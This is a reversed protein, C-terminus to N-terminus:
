VSWGTVQQLLSYIEDDLWPPKGSRRRHRRAMLLAYTEAVLEHTYEKDRYGGSRIGERVGSPALDLLRPGAEIDEQSCRV